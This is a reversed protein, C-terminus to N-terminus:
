ADAPVPAGLGFVERAKPHVIAGDQTLLTGAVVEDEMDIKLEGEELMNKLFALVNRSFMQSAHYPVTAPLNVPGLVTVGNEVVTEGARTLECNGGREAALDVVVSGPAMGRVMDATVLTPAKKGPVAATTIVVDSEGVVETMVEAQKKYFTEDMERAYGGKDESEGTDLGLEVFRAGLSEVQEKVASRIDYASVVAGNRKSTAIAQLGAVGAGLIFARAPSITGAATMMMPFMKPLTGAALLVAKYGAITAQSSLVDMTQARTIRPILELAFTRVGTAALAEIPEKETLPEAQGIVTQQPRLRGLDEDGVGGSASPARVQCVVDCGGFIDDRGGVVTAGVSAYEDDLFGAEAGSGAQVHVTVGAKVLAAVTQPVLAVRREGPYTEKVTGVIM